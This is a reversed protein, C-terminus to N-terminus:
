NQLAHMTSRAFICNPFLLLRCSNIFILTYSLSVICDCRLPLPVTYVLEVRLPNLLGLHFSLTLLLSLCLLLGIPATRQWWVRHM